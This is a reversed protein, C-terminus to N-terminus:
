FFAAEAGITIDGNMLIAPFQFDFEPSFVLGFNKHFRYRVNAGIHAGGIGSIIFPAIGQSTDNQPPKAQIQGATAGLFGSITLGRATEGGYFIYEARGGLLMNALTGAGAEFQFRFVGAVSLRPLVFYGVAVRLAPLLVLGPSNIRACWRSPYQISRSGDENIIVGTVIDDAACEDSPYRQPEEQNDFSNADPVWPLDPNFRGDDLFVPANEPPPADAIMGSYISTIGFAFGLQFFGKAFEGPKEPKEIGEIDLGDANAGPIMCIEEDCILGPQCERDTDCGDGIQLFPQKACEEGSLGPPCEVDKCVGPPQAGPLAPGPGQLATVVLAEFPAQATGATALVRDNSDVATLYYRVRPEWVDRCSIQYAFGSQYPIMEVQKFTDMGLGSYHLYLRDIETNPPIEAYIPLPAQSVQPSPPQHFIQPIAPPLPQQVVPQVPAVPQVTPQVMPQVMPQQPQVVPVTPPPATQPIGAASCGGSGAIQQAQLFVEQIDPTGILPDLQVSPDLCFARLFQDLGKQKNNQGGVYVVGLNIYTAVLLQGTVGNEMAVSLAKELLSTAKSVDLNNYAEMAENNLEILQKDTQQALAVDVAFLHALLLCFCVIPFRREM